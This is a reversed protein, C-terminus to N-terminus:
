IPDNIASQIMRMFPKKISELEDIIDGPRRSNIVPAFNFSMANSNQSGSTKHDIITEDPHIMALRGGRGDLGGSRPGDPIYGGGEFSGALALGESLGVTATIGASAPVANGGFSALSAM